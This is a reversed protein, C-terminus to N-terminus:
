KTFRDLLKELSRGEPLEGFELVTGDSTEIRLAPMGGGGEDFEPEDPEQDDQGEDQGEADEGNEPEQDEEEAKRRPSM